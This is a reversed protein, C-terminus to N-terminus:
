AHLLFLREAGVVALLEFRTLTKLRNVTAQQAEVNAEAVKVGANAAEVNAQQSSMNAQQNDRNQITEFGKQALSDIRSFTVKGLALNAQELRRTRSM